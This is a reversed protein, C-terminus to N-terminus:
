SRWRPMPRSPFARSGPWRPMPWVTGAMATSTATARPIAPSMCAGSDAKDFLGTELLEMSSHFDGAPDTVGGALILGQDVGAEGQYRAIWDALQDASAIIRAPFHPMPEMGESRLRTATAVMDEIPTGAIHAIYVRTGAPLLARFDDIKEATRPMVEISFGDLFGDLTPETANATRTRRGSFMSFANM